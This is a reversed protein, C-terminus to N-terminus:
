SGLHQFQFPSPHLSSLPSSRCDTDKHTPEPYQPLCQHLSLPRSPPVPSITLFSVLSSRYGFFRFLFPPTNPLSAASLDSPLHSFGHCSSSHHHKSLRPLPLHMHLLLMKGSISTSLKDFTCLLVHVISLTHLV